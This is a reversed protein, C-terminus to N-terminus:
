KRGYDEAYGTKVPNSDWWWWYKSNGGYWEPRPSPDADAPDHDPDHPNIGLNAIASEGSQNQVWNYFDEQPIVDMFSGMTTHEAGCLEACMIQFRGTRMAKFWGPIAMGPVADQKVRFNPLFFRHIVDMSRLHFLIERDVPITLTATTIDDFTGYQGDWGPYRFFWKYRLAVIQVEVPARNMGTGTPGQDKWSAEFTMNKSQAPMAQKMETWMDNQWLALLVLIVVVGLTAALEFTHNGHTYQAVRGPRDWFGLCCFLFFAETLIFAIGTIWLILYFLDDVAEGFSANNEPFFLTAVPEVQAGVAHSTITTSNSGRAMVQFTNPNQVVARGQTMPFGEKTVRRIEMEEGGIRVKGDSFSAGNEFEITPKASPDDGLATKLETTPLSFWLRMLLCLGLIVGLSVTFLFAHKQTQPSLAM